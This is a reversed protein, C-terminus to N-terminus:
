FILELDDSDTFTNDIGAIWNIGRHAMYAATITNSPGYSWPVPQKNKIHEKILQDEKIGYNNEIVGTCGSKVIGISGSITPIKKVERIDYCIKDLLHSPTDICFFVIDVNLDILDEASKIMKNYITVKYNKIRNKIYRKASDTKLMGIDELDYIFQRNFNNECVTDIDIISYNKVGIGVLHQLVISGTGGLGIIGVNSNSIKKLCLSPDYSKSSFYGLHKNNVYEISPKKILLRNKILSEKLEEFKKIDSRQKGNFYDFIDSPRINISSCDFNIIEEEAVFIIENDKLEIHINPNWIDM